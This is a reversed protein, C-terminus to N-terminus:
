RASKWKNSFKYVTPLRDFDNHGNEATTYHGKDFCFKTLFGANILQGIYKSAYSTTIGYAQMQKKPLVFYPSGFTKKRNRTGVLEALDIEPIEKGTLKFYDNLTCYTCEISAKTNAHVLVLIYMNKAAPTLSQFQESQLLDATVMTYNDFPNKFYQWEKLVPKSKKKSM